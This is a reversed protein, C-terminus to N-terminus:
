PDNTPFQGQFLVGDLLTPFQRQLLVGPPMTPFQGQLLVGPPMTPFKGLTFGCPANYSLTPKRRGEVLLASLEYYRLFM